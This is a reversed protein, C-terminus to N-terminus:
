KIKCNKIKVYGASNNNILHDQNLKWNENSVILTSYCVLLGNEQFHKINTKIRHNECNLSIYILTIFLTLLILIALTRLLNKQM